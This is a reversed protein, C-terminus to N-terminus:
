WVLYIVDAARSNACSIDGLIIREALGLYSYSENEHGLDM